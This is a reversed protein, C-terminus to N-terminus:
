DGVGDAYEQCLKLYEEYKLDGLTKMHKEWGAEDIGNVVANAIFKQLYNNIDTLLINRREANEVTAFGAPLGYVAFPEADAVALRGWNPKAKEDFVTSRSWDIRWLAPTQGAFSENKRYDAPNSYGLKDLTAQELTLMKPVKKGEVETTTWAVNEEGRGWLMAMEMSSNIYDYYRLLVEPDELNRNIAFGEERIYHNFGVMQTGDPGKLPAVSKFRDGDPGNDVGGDGGNYGIHAGIIDGAAGRAAYQEASMTFATSEILGQSYLKHFWQLAKFYGDEAPSFTVQGDRVFVHSSNEIVGFSGFLNEIGNAWGWVERFTFPIEDAKNNGNPDKEKFALLVAEFEDTTTPIELGLTELWAGNIWLKADYMNGVEEDGTPLCHIKGDPARLTRTYDPREKFLQQINPAYNAILEDLVALQEYNRSSNIGGVVADPMSQTSFMINTKESWASMPIENWEIRVNTEEEAKKVALKDGAKKVTGIQMVAVQYTKPEKLIPLGSANFNGGDESGKASDSVSADSSQSPTTTTTPAQQKMDCAALAWALSATLVLACVRIWPRKM